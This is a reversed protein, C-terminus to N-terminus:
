EETSKTFEWYPARDIVHRNFREGLHCLVVFLVSWKVWSETTTIAISPTGARLMAFLSTYVLGLLVSIGFIAENRSSAGLAMVYVASGFTLTAPSIRGDLYHELGLPLLPLLFHFMCCVLFQQWRRPMRPLHRKKTGAAPSAPEVM